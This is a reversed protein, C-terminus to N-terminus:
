QQAREKLEKLSIKTLDEPVPNLEVRYGGIYTKMRIVISQKNYVANIIKRREKDTLVKIEPLLAQFLERLDCSDLDVEAYGGKSFDFAMMTGANIQIIKLKGM